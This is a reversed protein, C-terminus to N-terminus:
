NIMIGGDVILVQGTIMRSKDSALFLAVDAIEQAEAFALATARAIGRKGGAGTVIAVRGELSLNPIGM